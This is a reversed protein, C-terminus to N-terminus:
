SYECKSPCSSSIFSTLIGRFNGTGMRLTSSTGITFVLFIKLVHFYSKATSFIDVSICVMTLDLAVKSQQLAGDASEKEQRLRANERRLQANQQALMQMSVLNSQGVNKENGAARFDVAKVVGNGIAFHGHTTMGGSVDYLVKANLEQDNEPGQGQEVEEM